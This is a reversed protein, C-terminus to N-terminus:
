EFKKESREVNSSLEQALDAATAYRRSRRPLRLSQAGVSLALYMLLHPISTAVVTHNHPTYQCRRVLNEFRENQPTLTNAITNQNLINASIRTLWCDTYSFTSSAFFRTLQSVSAAAGCWVAGLMICWVDAWVAYVVFVCFCVAVWLFM